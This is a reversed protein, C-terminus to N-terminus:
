YLRVKGCGNLNFLRRIQPNLLVLKEIPVNYRYSIDWLSEGGIPEVFQEPMIKKPDDTGSVMRFVFAVSLFNERPEALVSIDELVARFTGLKPVSLVGARNTFCLRMLEEYVSFCNLGYIEGTGSIKSINDSISRLRNKGGVLGVSEVKKSRTIKLTKPNHSMEVGSFRLNVNM